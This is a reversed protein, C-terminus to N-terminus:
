KFNENSEHYDNIRRQHMLVALVVDSLAGNDEPFYGVDVDVTSDAIEAIMKDIHKDIIVRLKNREITNM